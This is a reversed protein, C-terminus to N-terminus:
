EKFPFIALINSFEGSGKIFFSIELVSFMLKPM